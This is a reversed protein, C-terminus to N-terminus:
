KNEQAIIDNMTQAFEKCCEEMKSPDDWATVMDKQCQSTWKVANYTFPYEVVMNTVGDVKSEEAMDLHGSLDFLDTNNVWADSTGEYASMTVGLEAQKLQMEESGLWEILKWCDDARKTTAAAAWGLGNCISARIGTEKDYPILAVDCNEATFENQKFAPVMWSGQTIMAATGSEFLVDTATEAMVSASPCVDTLLKGVFEMAEITKPDDFGSTTHDESLVYGGKSYIMNWFSDQDNTVNIAYGYKNNDKDTLKVAADYFDDWTWTENPYEVGAEDFMTKNYWLAITDYDKPIAYYSDNFTYLATVQPLYKDMDIKDSEAIYDDLNLLMDNNMYIQSNNAHMWFVDPMDGGSAGAELLTWYSDWEKVEVQVKIGTEETFLDCIEQIGPQQNNDWIAVRLAESSSGGSSGSDSSGGSGGDSSGGSGGGCAALSLCMASAMLVSILRKKM